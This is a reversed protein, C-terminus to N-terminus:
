KTLEIGAVSVLVGLALYGTAQALVHTTPLPGIILMGICGLIALGDTVAFAGRCVKKLKRRM